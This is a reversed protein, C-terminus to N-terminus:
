SPWNRKFSSENLKLEKASLQITIQMPHEGDHTYEEIYDICHADTFSLTKLKSMNDRRFFTVTGSKTQTPSIMWDFLDTKGNSELTLNIVGDFPVSTPRVSADTEQSFQFRCHLVNLQDGDLTLKAIFSM